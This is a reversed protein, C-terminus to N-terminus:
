SKSIILFKPPHESTCVSELSKRDPSEQPLCVYSLSYPSKFIKNEQFMITFIYNTICTKMSMHMTSIHLYSLKIEIRHTKM